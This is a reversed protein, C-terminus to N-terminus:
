APEFVPQVSHSYVCHRRICRTFLVIELLLAPSVFQSFEAGHMNVLLRQGCLIKIAVHVHTLELSLEM